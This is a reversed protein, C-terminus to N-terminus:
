QNSNVELYGPYRPDYSEGFVVEINGDQRTTLCYRKSYEKTAGNYVNWGQSKESYKASASTGVNRTDSIITIYPNVLSVFDKYYGSERGHHPAVLVYANQVAKQFNPNDMLIEFSEKENDGCVVVKANGLQIVVIASFNNKNNKNCGSTAFCQATLGDFFNGLCPSENPTISRNYSEVFDCYQIIKNQDSVRAGELLEARTFSNCRWLMDPKACNINEIDSFHDLHPHTIVMFGVESWRLSQLPSLSETSGLDIVIYKGNPAKIHVALGLEVNWIKMTAQKAM